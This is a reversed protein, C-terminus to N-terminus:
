RDATLITQGYMTITTAIGNGRSGTGAGGAGGVGITFDIVQGSTGGSLLTTIDSTNTTVSSQLSSLETDIKNSVTNYTGASPIVNGPTL